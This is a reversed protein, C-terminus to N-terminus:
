LDIHVKLIGPLTTEYQVNTKTAGVKQEIHVLFKM